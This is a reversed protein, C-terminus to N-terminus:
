DSKVAGLIYTLSVPFFLPINRKALEANLDEWGVGPEVTCDSDEESIRLIKNMRSM